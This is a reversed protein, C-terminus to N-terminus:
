QESIDTIGHQKSVKILSRLDNKMGEVFAQAVRVNIYGIIKSFPCTQGGSLKQCFGCEFLNKPSCLLGDCLIVGEDSIEVKM